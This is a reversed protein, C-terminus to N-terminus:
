PARDTGLAEAFRELLPVWQAPPVGYRSGFRAIVTRHTPSVHVFQGHNGRASFEHSGDDRRRGWWFLNYYAGPRMSELPVSGSPGTAAAVWAQPLVRTGDSAVGGDLFLQGFRAFDIARANVGSELKELGAGEHDLSWSAGPGLGAPQWLRRSLVEAVSMGTRRELVLGLLLPHYNNYVFPGGPEAEIRTHRLALERLDPWYYTKADDGNLFRTEHYAIGSRMQLLHRLTIRAFRPDRELLEPLTNTVPEDLSAIVGDAVAAVVLTSLISKAVSFSTVPRERTQGGYYAEYVVRGDRM